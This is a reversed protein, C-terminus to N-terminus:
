ESHTNGNTTDYEKNKLESEVENKIKILKLIQQALNKMIAYLDKKQKFVINFKEVIDNLEALLGGVVLISILNIKFEIKIVFFIILLLVFVVVKYIAQAVLDKLSINLRKIFLMTFLTNIGYFIFFLAVLGISSKLVSYLYAIIFMLVMGMAKIFSFDTNEIIKRM